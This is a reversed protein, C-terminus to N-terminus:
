EHYNNPRRNGIGSGPDWPLAVIHDGLQPQSRDIDVNGFGTGNIDLLAIDYKPIETVAASGLKQEVGVSDQRYVNIVRSLTQDPNLRWQTARGVV